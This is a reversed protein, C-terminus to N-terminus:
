AAKEALETEFPKIDFAEGDSKIKVGPIEGALEAEKLMAEKDLEHSVRLFRRFRAGAELVWALAKEVNRVNVKPPKARWAIEGADFRYSKSRGGETLEDRHADCWAEIAAEAEDRAVRLPQAAMAYDTKAAALRDNMVTELRALERRTRGLAAIAENVEAASRLAAKAKKTM